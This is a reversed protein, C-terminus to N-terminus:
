VPSRSRPSRVRGGPRLEHPAHMAVEADQRALGGRRRRRAASARPVPRPCGTAARLRLTRIRWTSAPLSRSSRLPRTCTRSVHAPSAPARQLPVGAARGRRPLVPRPPATRSGRRGSWALDLTFTGLFTRLRTARASAAERRRQAHAARVDAARADRRALRDAQQGCPASPPAPPRPQWRFHSTRSDVKMPVGAASTRLGSKAAERRCKMKVSSCSRRRSDIWAKTVLSSAGCASSHSSVVNGSETKARM